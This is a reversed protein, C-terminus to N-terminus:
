CGLDIRAQPDNAPTCNGSPLRDPVYRELDPDYLAGALFAVLDEIEEETLDLPVFRNTLRGPPLDVAPIADNYYEIVERLSRFTGGHGYFTVDRLNYLQPVKFKFEEDTNNDFGGRGLREIEDGQFSIGPMDPMGLAYFDMQNLAPGTHCVECQAKGFYVIAGRKEQPSMANTAGRLWLQFPAKNALLTREYAAIALGVNEVSIETGPFAAEWLSQYTPNTHLVSADLRDMRHKKLGSIAQAELGDFGLKNVEAQTGDIWQAETGRNPGRAGFVGAWGMVEQYAGNLVSPSRIPLTDIQDMSYTGSPRRGQGNAGWGVGGEGIALLAGAQFGAGAHHCTACSYTGEGEPRVPNTALATEHFLMRGLEIKEPSLPNAPDQPIAGLDDSEPLIFNSLVRQGQLTILDVLTEDLGADQEVPAPDSEVSSCGGLYFALTIGLLVQGSFRVLSDIDHVM